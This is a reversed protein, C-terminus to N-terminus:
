IWLSSLELRCPIYLLDELGPPVGQPINEFVSDVDVAIVGEGRSGHSIM